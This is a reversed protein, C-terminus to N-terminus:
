KNFLAATAKPQLKMCGELVGSIDNRKTADGMEKVTKNKDEVTLQDVSPGTGGTVGKFADGPNGTKDAAAKAAAAKERAAKQEPTEPALMAAIAAAHEKREALDKGKVVSWDKILPFEKALAEQEQKEKYEANIRIAEAGAKAAAKLEEIKEPTLGGLKAQDAKLQAIAADKESLQKSQAEITASQKTVHEVLEEETM